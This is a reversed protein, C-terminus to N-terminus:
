RVGFIAELSVEDMIRDSKTDANKIMQEVRSELAVSVFREVDIGRLQFFLLPDVDFRAGIGYLVAAVHKCLLAWDPCSCDFSIEKPSPFLGNEGLFLEQLEEPIDGSLLHEVNEIRNGCEGIIQQCREESLPSIRISVKYPAKRRGQVRATVKGKNIKMDLVTDNRVYRRGRELRSSYDAYQLLNECWARGWWSKVIQNGKIKVTELKKGKKKEREATAKAKKKLSAIDPQEYKLIDKWYRVM